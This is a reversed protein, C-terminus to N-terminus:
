AAAAKDWSFSGKTDIPYSAPPGWLQDSRPPLSFFEWGKRPSSGAIIWGTAWRQVV